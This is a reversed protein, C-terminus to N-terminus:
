FMPGISFHIESNKGPYTRDTTDNFRYGYDLRIQGVPTDIRVGIGTGYRFENFNMKMPDYHINGGDLFAALYIQNEVLPIRYELNFFLQSEGGRSLNAFTYETDGITGTWDEFFKIEGDPYGRISNAGGLYFRSYDPLPKDTFINDVVSGRVRFAICHRGANTNFLPIFYSFDLTPKVYDIDGGLIGGSIESLLNLIYGKTPYRPNDTTNRIFSINMSSSVEKSQGGGADVKQIIDIPAIRTDINDIKVHEYQYRVFIRNYYGIRRGVQISAGVRAIDYEDLLRKLNYVRYGLFIPIEPSQVSTDDTKDNFWPDEWGIEYNTRNKGFESKIHIKQGKGTFSWLDYLDFNNKSVEVFGVFKDVSSYGAGFTLTGTRGEVVEIILNKYNEKESPELYIQVSDFFNLMILNRRSLDIKKQDFVEGEKVYLERKIVKYYTKLNGRILIKDIYYQEGETITLQYHIYQDESLKYQFDVDVDLYGKERYLMNIMDISEMFENNKYIDGKELTINGLVEEDTFLTNGSIEVDGLKFQPGQFINITIYVKDRSENYYYHAEIRSEIYGKNYLRFRLGNIDNELQLPNFKKRSKQKIRWRTIFRKLFEQFRNYDEYFYIDTKEIKIQQNEIIEYILSAQNLQTDITIIPIIEALPYGKLYYYEKINNISEGLLAPRLITNPQLQNLQRIENVTDTDDQSSKVANIGYFDISSLMPHETLKFSLVGDGDLTAEIDSFFDLKALIQKDISIREKIQSKTYEGAEIGIISNLYNTSLNVNGKFLVARVHIIEPEGELDLSFSGTTYVSCFLLLVSLIFGIKKM